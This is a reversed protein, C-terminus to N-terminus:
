RAADLQERAAESYVGRGESVAQYKELQGRAREAQGAGRLSQAFLYYFSEPPQLDLAALAEFQAVAARHDEAALLPKLRALILRQREAAPLWHEAQLRLPTLQEGAIAYRGFQPLRENLRVTLEAKDPRRPLREALAKLPVRLQGQRFVHVEEATGVSGQADFGEMVVRAQVTEAYTELLPRTRGTPKVNFRQPADAQWAGTKGFCDDSMIACGVGFTAVSLTVTKFLSPDQTRRSERVRQDFGFERELRRSQLRLSFVDKDITPTDLQLPVTAAAGEARWETGSPASVWREQYNVTGCGALLLPSLAAMLRLPRQLSTFLLPSM